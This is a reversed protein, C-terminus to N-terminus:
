RLARAQERTYEKAIRAAEAIQADSSVIQRNLCAEIASLNARSRRGLWQMLGLQLLAEIRFTRDEDQDAFRILDGVSGQLAYLGLQKNKWFNSMKQSEEVCARMDLSKGGKEGFTKLYTLGASQAIALGVRRPALRVNHDFMRRGMAWVALMANEGRRRRAKAQENAQARAWDLVVRATLEAADGYDAKAMPQMPTMADLFGDTTQPLDM